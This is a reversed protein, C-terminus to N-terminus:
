RGILGPVLWILLLSWLLGFIGGMIIGVWAHVTGRVHPERKRKALGKLGLIFAAIGLPSGLGPILSFLGLYYALLAPGNKYPILGGTADGQPAPPSAPAAGILPPPPSPASVVELPPPDHRTAGIATIGPLERLPRWAPSGQWWVKTGELPVKGSAIGRNVQNLSFPGHKKGGIGLYIQM